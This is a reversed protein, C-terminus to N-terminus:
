SRFAKDQPHLQVWFGFKESKVCQFEVTDLGYVNWHLRNDWDSLIVVPARGGPSWEELLVLAQVQVHDVGINVGFLHIHEIFATFPMVIADVMISQAHFIGESLCIPVVLEIRM